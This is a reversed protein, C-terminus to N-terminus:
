GIYPLEGSRSREEHEKAQRFAEKMKEAQDDLKKFEKDMAVIQEDLTKTNVEVDLIKALKLLVAKAAKPDPYAGHTEGLLCAARKGNREAMPVLIGALGTVGLTGEPAKTREVNVDKKKLVAEMEGDALVAFVNPNEVPAGTGFGGLTYLESIGFEDCLDLIVNAFEFYGRATAGQYLGTLIFLENRADYYLDDKELEIKSEAGYVVGPINSGPYLFEPSYIEALKVAGLSDILQRTALLGVQGVGLLGQVYRSKKPSPRKAVYEVSIGDLRFGM